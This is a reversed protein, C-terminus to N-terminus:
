NRIKPENFCCPLITCESTYDSYYEKLNELLRESVSIIATARKLAYVNDKKAQAILYTRASNMELEPVMDSHFDIVLPIKPSLFSVTNASCAIEAQVADIRNTLCVLWTVLKRFFLSLYICGFRTPLAYHLHPRIGKSLLWKREANRLCFQHTYFGLLHVEYGLRQLSFIMNDIRVMDGRKHNGLLYGYYVVLIKKM